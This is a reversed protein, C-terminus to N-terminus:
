DKKSFFCSKVEKTLPNENFIKFLVDSLFILQWSGLCNSFHVCNDDEHGFMILIEESNIREDNQPIEPNYEVLYYEGQSENIIVEFDLKENHWKGVLNNNVYDRIKKM